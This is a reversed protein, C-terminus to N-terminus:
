ASIRAQQCSRKRAHRAVLEGFLALQGSTTDDWSFGEAYRRTAARDPLDAFLREIAEAFAGSNRERVLLGAEEAAVVEPTGWIDTAVVPTGCAMAELLVNAWGERSSALILADAANYLDVMRDHPLGGLFHVRDGVGTREALGELERRQPGEGAIFLSHGPLNALAEIVIDHGKREILYGVSALTRGRMGFHRRLPEREKPRFQGLDVGNRLVEIKGGDIGLEVLCTKLATCVTVIGDARTAAETIMRGITPFAQPYLNIDTGRATVTVPKGLAAALRVAAVGDPYFYHADILDFDFGAAILERAHRLLRRYLAGAHWRMGIKPLMAYRPHDVTIGHRVEQAPVAAWRGYDGLHSSVIPFWPVPAIVRSGIRGSAVLHRLRNEVFVGFSPMAANPYLSSVTLIRLASVM